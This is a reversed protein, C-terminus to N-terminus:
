ASSPMRSGRQDRPSPSTYLLCINPQMQPRGYAVQGPFQNEPRPNYNGPRPVDNMVVNQTQVAPQSVPAPCVRAVLESLKANQNQLNESISKSSESNLIELIKMEISALDDIKGCSSGLLAQSDLVPNNSILNPVHPLGDCSIHLQFCKTEMSFIDWTSQTSVRDRICM